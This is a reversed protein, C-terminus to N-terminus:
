GLHQNFCFPDFLTVHSNKEFLVTKSDRDLIVASQATIPQIIPKTLFLYSSVPLGYDRTTIKSIEADKKVSITMVQLIQLIVLLLIPILIYFFKSEYRFVFEKIPLFISRPKKKYYKKKAM